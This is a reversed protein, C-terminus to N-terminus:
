GFILGVGSAVDDEQARFAQYVAEARPGELKAAFGRFLEAARALASDSGEILVLRGLDPFGLAAGERIAISQRSVLDDKLAEDIKPGDSPKVDFVAYM